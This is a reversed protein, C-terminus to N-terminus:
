VIHGIWRGALMVGCWLLLSSGGALKLAAPTRTAIDAHGTILYRPSLRWQFWAMNLGALALLIGKAIFAPNEIHSSARTIFMGLGTVSAVAFAGWAWWLMDRHLASIPYTTAGLGLLRLDVWLLSGLLLTAFIIHVTELTPFWNTAAIVQSLSWNEMAVWFPYESGDFYPEMTWLPYQLYELYAIWRGGV